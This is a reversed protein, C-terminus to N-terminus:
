LSRRIGELGDEHAIGGFAACSIGTSLLATGFLPPRTSGTSRGSACVALVFSGLVANIAMYMGTARVPNAGFLVMSPTDSPDATKPSHIYALTNM